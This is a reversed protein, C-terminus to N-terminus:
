RWLFRVSHGSEARGSSPGDTPPHDLSIVAGATERSTM